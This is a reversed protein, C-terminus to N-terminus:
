ELILVVRLYVRKKYLIVPTLPLLIRMARCFLRTKIKLQHFLQIKAICSSSYHLIKPLFSNNLRYTYQQAKDQLYFHRVMNRRFTIFNTTSTHLHQRTANITRRVSSVILLTLCQPKQIDCVSEPYTTQYVSCAHTIDAPIEFAGLEKL